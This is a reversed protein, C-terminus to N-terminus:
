ESLTAPTEIVLLSGVKLSVSATSELRVNSLGRAPGVELAEDILAYRLGITTVGGAPGAFPLLSVLDGPRGSLSLSAPGGGPGSARILRIRAAPALLTVSRDILRPHGLLVVNALAHDLRPGGFAGLVTLRSAGRDIAALVALETDSEDKDAASLEIPVGARRLVDLASPSLSDGDGVWLDVPGRGLSVAYAAGGDAAVILDIGDSWGPWVADLRAADPPDGDALILAHGPAHGPDQRSGTAM